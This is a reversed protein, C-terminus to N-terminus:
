SSVNLVWICAFIVRPYDACSGRILVRSEIGRMRLCSILVRGLGGKGLIWRWGKVRVRSAWWVSRFRGSSGEGIM